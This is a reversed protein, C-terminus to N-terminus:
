NRGSKKTRKKAENLRWNKIKAHDGSLLVDPVKWEKYEVPRTYQPYELLLKGSEDQISFSEEESSENKGLAGPLLRVISDVIAMAPIEGGSLVFDGISIQEDVLYQRIREDFGEYHGCILIIKEKVLLQKAKNQTYREGQPTLLIIDYDHRNKGAIASIARDMVDVKLVMGAGGGCPTDDVTKHKDEAFDRLNVLNIKIIDKEIARSIISESFSGVFMEPFLTIINIEM